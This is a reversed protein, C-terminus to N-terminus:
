RRAKAVKRWKPVQEQFGKPVKSSFRAQSGQQPVKPVQSSFRAQSGRGLFRAPSGQQPVKSPFRKRPVKTLRTQTGRGPFRPVKAIRIKAAGVLGKSHSFVGLKRQQPFLPINFSADVAIHVTFWAHVAIKFLLGPKLRGFFSM